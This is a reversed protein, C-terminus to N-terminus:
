NYIRVIDWGKGEVKQAIASGPQPLARLQGFMIVSVIDYLLRWAVAILGLFRGFLVGDFM